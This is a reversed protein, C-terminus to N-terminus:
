CAERPTKPSPQGFILNSLEDSPWKSQGPENPRPAEGLGEPRHRPVCGTIPTAVSLAQSPQTAVPLLGGQPSVQGQSTSGLPSQASTASSPLTTSLQSDSASAGASRRRRPEPSAAGSIAAAVLAGGSLRGSRRTSDTM